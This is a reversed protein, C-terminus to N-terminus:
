EDHYSTKQRDNGSASQFSDRIASFRNTSALYRANTRLVYRANEDIGIDTLTVQKDPDNCIPRWGLGKSYEVRVRHNNEVEVETWAVTVVRVWYSRGCYTVERMDPGAESFIKHSGLFGGNYDRSILFYDAPKTQESALAGVAPLCFALGLCAGIAAQILARALPLEQLRMSM